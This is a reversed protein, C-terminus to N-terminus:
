LQEWAPRDAGYGHSGHPWRLAQGAVIGPPAVATLTRGNAPIRVLHQPAADGDPEPAVDRQTPISAVWYATRALSVRRIPTGGYRRQRRLGDLAAAAALYGTGHDLLQCPLAGPQDGADAEGVALGTAAQVVSDFGRRGSWPGSHGWADLIVVVTGPHRQALEEASLGYRSLAGPRYGQVVVDAGDLLAHIREADASNTLDLTSSRKALLSDAFRGPAMDRRRPPDVRLVDSGLAGLLRTCVPGAIVRTLDLVRARSPTSRPAADGVVDLSILPEDAVARGQPHRNWEEFSRVAAGVGGAAFVRQEFEEGRLSAIAEGVQDAVPGDLELADLVAQRHWPYNAHARVWGDAAPWFRSLPAFAAGAVQGDVAFFRESRCADAVHGRELEILASRRPPDLAVAARLATAICAVAIDEVAFRSRLRGSRGAVVVPACPVDDDGAILTAWVAELVSDTDRVM